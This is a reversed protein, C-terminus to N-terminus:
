KCTSWRMTHLVRGLQSALRKGNVVAAVTKAWCRRSVAIDCQLGLPNELFVVSLYASSVKRVRQGVFRILQGAGSAQM